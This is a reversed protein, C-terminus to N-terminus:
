KTMAHLIFFLFDGKFTATIQNTTYGEPFKKKIPEVARTPGPRKKLRRIYECDTPSGPRAILEDCSRGLCLISMYECWVGM